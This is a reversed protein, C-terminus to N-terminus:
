RLSKGIFELLSSVWLPFQPYNVALFSAVPVVGWAVIRRALAFPSSIQGAKSGSVASVVPDVELSVYSVLAVAVTVAVWFFAVSAILRQPQVFYLSPLFVSCACGLIMPPLFLRFHRVYRPIFLDVLSAALEDIRDRAAASVDADRRRKSSDESAALLAEALDDCAFPSQCSAALGGPDEARAEASMRRELLESCERHRERAPPHVEALRGLVDVAYALQVAESGSSALQEGLPRKRRDTLRDFAQIAPFRALRRLFRMTCAWASLFWALNISATFAAVVGLAVLAVNRWGPELTHPPKIIIPAAISLLFLGCSALTLARAHKWPHFLTCLLRHEVDALGSKEGCREGLAQAIPPPMGGFRGDDGARFRHMDLMRLRTRACLLTLAYSAMAILGVLIPSGGSMLHFTARREPGCGAYLALLVVLTPAAVPLLRVGRELCRRSWALWREWGHLKATPMRAAKSRWGSIYYIWPAGVILLALVGCAIWHDPESGQRALMSEVM